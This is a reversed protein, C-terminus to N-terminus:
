LMEMYALLKDFMILGYHLAAALIALSLILFVLKYLLYAKAFDRRPGKSPCFALILLYIWGIVPINMCMFTVFWQHVPVLVPPKDKKKKEKPHSAEPEKTESAATDPSVKQEEREPIVSTDATLDLDKEM